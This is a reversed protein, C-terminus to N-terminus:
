HLDAMGRELDSGPIACRDQDAGAELARQEVDTARDRQDQQDQDDRAAVPEAGGGVEETVLVALVAPRQERDPEAPREHDGEERPETRRAVARDLEAAVAAAHLAPSIIRGTRTSTRIASNPAQPGIAYTLWTVSRASSATSAARAASASFYLGYQHVRAFSYRYM